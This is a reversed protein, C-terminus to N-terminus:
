RTRAATPSPIDEHLDEGSGEGLTRRRFISLTPNDYVNSGPGVLFFTATPYGSADTSLVDLRSGDVSLQWRSLHRMDRHFLGLVRDPDPEVDGTLDSVMFTNGELCNVQPDKVRESQWMAGVSNAPVQAGRQESEILPQLPNKSVAIPYSHFILTPTIPGGQNGMGGRCYPPVSDTISPQSATQHGRAM